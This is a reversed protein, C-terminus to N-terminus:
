EENEFAMPERPQKAAEIQAEANTTLFAELTDDDVVLKSSFLEERGNVNDVAWRVLKAKSEPDCLSLRGLVGKAAAEPVRRAQHECVVEIM